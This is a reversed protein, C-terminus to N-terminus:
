NFKAKPKENYYFFAVAELLLEPNLLRNDTEYPLVIAFTLNCQHHLSVYNEFVVM